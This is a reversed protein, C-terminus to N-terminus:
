RLLSTFYVLLEATASLGRSAKHGCYYNAEYLLIVRASDKIIVYSPREMFLNCFSAMKNIKLIRFNSFIRKTPFKIPSM